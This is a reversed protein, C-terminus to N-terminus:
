LPTRPGSDTSARTIRSLRSHRRLPADGITWGGASAVIANKGSASSSSRRSRSARSSYRRLFMLATPTQQVHGSTVSDGVDISSSSMGAHSRARRCYLFFYIWRRLLRHFGVRFRESFNYYVYFNASCHTMVLLNNFDVLVYFFSSHRVATGNNDSEGGPLAVRQAGSGGFVELANLVFALLNCTLFVIAVSVMMVATGQEKTQQRSLAQRHSRAQRVARVVNGNLFVLISFPVAFMFVFYMWHGYIRMYNSDSRLTPMAIILVVDPDDDAQIRLISYEWFRPANYAISFVMIAALAFVARSPTCVVRALFPRCVAIYRFPSRCKDCRDYPVHRLHAIAITLFKGKSPSLLYHGCM